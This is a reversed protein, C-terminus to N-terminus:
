VPSKYGNMYAQLYNKGVCKFTGDCAIILESEGALIRALEVENVVVFNIIGYSICSNVIFSITM